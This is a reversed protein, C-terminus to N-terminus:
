EKLWQWLKKTPRGGKLYGQGSASAFEQPSQRLMERLRKAKSTQRQLNTVPTYDEAAYMVHRGRWRLRAGLVAGPDEYTEYRKLVREQPDLDWRELPRIRKTIEQAAVPYCSEDVVDNTIDVDLESLMEATERIVRMPWIPIAVGIKGIRATRGVMHLFSYRNAPVCLVFVHTVDPLDVGHGQSEKLLLFKWPHPQRDSHSVGSLASIEELLKIDMGYKRLKAYVAILDTDNDVFIVVRGPLPLTRALHLLVTYRDQVRTYCFKMRLTAPLRAVCLVEKTNFTNTFLQQMRSKVRTELDASVCVIQLM